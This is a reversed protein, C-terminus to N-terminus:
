SYCNAIQKKATVTAFVIVLFMGDLQLITGISDLCKLFYKSFLVPVPTYRTRDKGMGSQYARPKSFEM